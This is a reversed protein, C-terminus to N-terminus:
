VRGYGRCLVTMDWRHREVGEMSIQVIVAVMKDTKRSGVEERRGAEECCSGTYNECLVFRGTEGYITSRCHSGSTKLATQIRQDRNVKGAGDRGKAEM